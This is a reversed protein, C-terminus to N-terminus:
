FRKPDQWLSPGSNAFGGFSGSNGFGAGGFGSSGSGFRRRGYIKWGYWGGACIGAFLLVKFIPFSFATSEYTYMKNRQVEPPSLSASSTTVSIIDHADSVDGTMASFGLYPNTPLSIGNATFCDSWDDWGKYQVKVDLTTDKVYTVKLKTAVNTRRYNASCAGIKTGDGDNAQDYSTQGDGLMAVVRPFSYGHRANAYTDLFVGLGEFKDISGFVPGPEARGKTFWIALGDGFLHSSDGAIKFEVEMIFNTATIPLRSWLWGMLSPRNRTLRVHKNTNVYADAGFDWWRNQLDQDIYPAYLSHTRLQVTREITRNAIKMGDHSSGSVLSEPELKFVFSPNVLILSAVTGDLTTCHTVHLFERSRSSLSGLSVVSNIISTHYSSPLLFLYESAAMTSRPLWMQNLREGSAGHRVNVSPASLGGMAPSVLSVEEADVDIVEVVGSRSTASQYTNSYATARKRPPPKIGSLRGSRVARDRESAILGGEKRLRGEVMMNEMEQTLLDITQEDPQAGFAGSGRSATRRFFFIPLPVQDLAHHISSHAFPEKDISKVKESLNVITNATVTSNLKPPVIGPILVPAIRTVGFCVYLFAQHLFRVYQFSVLSPFLYTLIHRGYHNFTVDSPSPSFVLALDTAALAFYLLYRWYSVGNTKGIVSFFILGMACFTHFGMMSVLGEELFDDPTKCHICQLVKPGFRDYAWRKVPDMLAEYGERVEVFLATGGDGVRDPHSRKAFRRFALKLGQGDVNPPVDLLQYYSPPTSTMAEVLNWIIYLFLVLSFVLRYHWVTKPGLYPRVFRLIINTIIDLVYSWIALSLLPPIMNFPATHQVQMLLVRFDRNDAHNFCM